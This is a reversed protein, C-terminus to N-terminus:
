YTSVDVGYKKLKVEPSFINKRMHAYKAPTAQLMLCFRDKKNQQNWGKHVCSVNALILTGAKGFVPTSKKNTFFLNMAEKSNETRAKKILSRLNNWLVNLSVKWPSLHSQPIITLPGDGLENVDNLYIFAKFWPEMFGDIHFGRKSSVDMYDIQLCSMAIHFDQDTLKKFLSEIQLKEIKKEIRENLQDVNIVQVVNKDFAQIQGRRMVYCNKTLLKSASLDYSTVDKILEQCEEATLVNEIVQYGKTTFSNKPFSKFFSYNRFVSYLEQILVKM